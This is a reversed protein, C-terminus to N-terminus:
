GAVTSGTSTWSLVTQLRDRDTLYLFGILAEYATSKRYTSQGVKRYGAPKVNRARRVIDHELETLRDTVVHLFEAQRAASVRSTTRAHMQQASSVTLVEREREFLHLVADGLHALLRMSILRAQEVPLPREILM